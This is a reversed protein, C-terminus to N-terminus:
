VHHCVVYLKLVEIKTMLVCLISLGNKYFQSLEKVTFVVITTAASKLHLSLQKFLSINVARVTM